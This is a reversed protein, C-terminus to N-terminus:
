KIKMCNIVRKETIIKDVSVDHKYTPIKEVMQCEFALGIHQAKTSKKLLKDYYGMGHGIRQGKEDFGVGPVIIM